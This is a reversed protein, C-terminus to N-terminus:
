DKLFFERKLSYTILLRGGQGTGNKVRRETERILELQVPGPSLRELDAQTFVLRGDQVTDVRNIEDNAFSTDTFLVRLYDKSGLGEFRIVLPNTSLENKSIVGAFPASLTFIKFDFEERYEKKNIDTYVIAHPGIFSAIPKHIEYFAGNMKTSNAPIEEGDLMVMGPQDIFIADGDEGEVRYQLKVTLNEDGEEGSLKYDFYIAETDTESENNYCGFFCIAVGILFLILGKEM